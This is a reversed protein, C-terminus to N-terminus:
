PPRSVRLVATWRYADVPGGLDTGIARPSSALPYHNGNNSGDDYALVMDGPPFTMDTREVALAGDIWLRMVGDNAGADTDKRLYWEVSIWQGYVVDINSNLLPSSQEYIGWRGQAAGEDLNVFYRRNAPFTVFLQKNGGSSTSTPYDARFQVEAGFFLERTGAPLSFQMRQPDHGGEVGGDYRTQIVAMGGIRPAGAYGSTAYEKAGYTQVGDVGWGNADLMAENNWEGLVVFGAPENPFGGDSPSAGGGGM